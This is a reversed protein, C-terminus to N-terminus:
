SVVGALEGRVRAALSGAQAVVEETIPVPAYLAAEVLMSLQAFAEARRQAVAARAIERLTM